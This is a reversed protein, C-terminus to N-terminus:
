TLTLDSLAEQRRDQRFESSGSAHSMPAGSFVCDREGTDGILAPSQPAGMRQSTPLRSCDLSLIEDRRWRVAGGVRVPRPLRAAANDRRVSRVSKQVLWAMAEATLLVPLESPHCRENAAVTVDM